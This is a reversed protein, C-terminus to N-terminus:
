SARYHIYQTRRIQQRGHHMCTVYSRAGPLLLVSKYECGCVLAFLVYDIPRDDDIM